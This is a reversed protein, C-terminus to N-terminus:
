LADRYKDADACGVDAVAVKDGVDNGVDAGESTINSTDVKDGNISIGVTVTDGVGSRTSVDSEGDTAGDNGGVEPLDKM